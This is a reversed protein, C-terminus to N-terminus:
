VSQDDHAFVANNRRLLKRLLPILGNIQVIIYMIHLQILFDLNNIRFKFRTQMAEGFARLTSLTAYLNFYYYSISPLYSIFLPLIYVWSLTIIKASLCPNSGQSPQGEVTKLVAANSREAM